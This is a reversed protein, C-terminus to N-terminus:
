QKGYLPIIIISIYSTIIFIVPLESYELKEM